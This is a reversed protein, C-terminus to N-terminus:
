GIGKGTSTYLGVKCLFRDAGQDMYPYVNVPQNLRNVYVRVINRSIRQRRFIGERIAINRAIEYRLASIL